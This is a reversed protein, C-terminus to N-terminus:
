ARGRLIGTCSVSNAYNLHPEFSKSFKSPLCIFVDGLRRSKPGPIGNGSSAPGRFNGPEARNGVM